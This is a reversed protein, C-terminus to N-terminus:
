SAVGRVRKEEYTVIFSCIKEYTVIIIIITVYSAPELLPTGRALMPCSRCVFRARVSRFRKERERM